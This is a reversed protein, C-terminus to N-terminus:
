IENIESVAEQRPPVNNQGAPIEAKAETTAKGTLVCNQNWNLFLEIETNIMFFILSSIFASVNKLPIIIKIDESETEVDNNALDDAGPLTNIFKTKYDFSESNKISRFIKKREIQIAPVDAKVTYM